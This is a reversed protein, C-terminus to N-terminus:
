NADVAEVCGMGAVLNDGLIGGEKGDRFVEM